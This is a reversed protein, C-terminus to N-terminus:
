LVEAKDGVVVAHDPVDDVVTAGAGIMAGEGITIGCLITANAGISADKKVLTMRLVSTGAEIARVSPHKDNTFVVGPGVFVRKQLTVGKPIFTHTGIRCRDGIVAEGIEVYSGINCDRGIKCRYLNCFHWITTGEGIDCEEIITFRGMM